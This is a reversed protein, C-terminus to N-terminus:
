APGGLAHAINTTSQSRHKAHWASQRIRIRSTCCSVVVAVGDDGCSANSCKAIHSLASRQQLMMIPEMSTISYWALDLRCKCQLQDSNTSRCPHGEHQTSSFQAHRNSAHQQQSGVM